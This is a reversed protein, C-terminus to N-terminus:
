VPEDDDEDNDESEDAAISFWEGTGIDRAAVIVGVGDETEAVVCTPDESIPLECDPLDTCRLLVTCRIDGCNSNARRGESHPELVPFSNRASSYLKSCQFLIEANSDLNSCQFLTELMPISNRASSHTELLALLWQEQNVLM